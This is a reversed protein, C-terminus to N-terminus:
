PPWGGIVRGQRKGTILRCLLRFLWRPISIPNHRIILSSRNIEVGLFKLIEGNNLLDLAAFYIDFKVALEIAQVADIGIASKIIVKDNRTVRVPCRWDLGGAVEVDQIPTGLEVKINDSSISDTVEFAREALLSTFEQKIPPLSM